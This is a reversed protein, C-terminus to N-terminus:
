YRNQPASIGGGRMRRLNGTIGGLPTSSQGMGRMATALGPAQGLVNMNPAATASGMPQSPLTRRMEMGRDVGAQRNPPGGVGGVGMPPASPLGRFTGWSFKPMSMGPDPVGPNPVGPDAPMGPASGYVGPGSMMGMPRRRPVFGGTAGFFDRMGDLGDIGLPM